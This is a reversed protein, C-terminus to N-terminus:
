FIFIRFYMPTSYTFVSLVVLLNGFITAAICATMVSASAIMEAAPRIVTVGSGSVINLTVHSAPSTTIAGYEGVPRRTTVLDTIFVSRTAMSVTTIQLLKSGYVGHDM